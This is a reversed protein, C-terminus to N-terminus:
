LTGVETQMEVQTVEGRLFSCEPLVPAALELVFEGANSTAVFGFRPLLDEVLKNKATPIYHARLREAGSRRAYEVMDRFMFAEVGRGIVRCSMLWTDVTWERDAMEALLVGILGHDAFRDRLRYWRFCFEPSIMRRHVEEQSYRKTTLNFQNTKNILQTVRVCTDADVSGHEIQMCLDTLYQGLSGSRLRLMEQEASALYSASRTVDDSSLRIAQFYLGRELVAISESPEGSIEPVVVEPLEERVASREAPNDDLFVFSDLGLRLESAMQRINSPKDFWNAKFSVFDELRLVSDQHRRFVEAADEPNNKSAVALLVGRQGLAKVYQQFEQYREGVASPPGLRIGGLGDEGVVGGWLTNDLDLILLKRSLGLEARICSVLHEAVNPLVRPAPYIKAASWSISDEWPGANSAAIRESDILTVRTPAREFLTENINRITRARGANMVSSLAHYADLPPPAFTLQIIQASTRDIAAQWAENVRSIAEAALGNQCVDPLGLDRWNLLLIIFEPGFRSLESDPQLLEHMYAGFPPEYFEPELRDRLCLLEMVSRLLTTTSSGLLAIRIKRHCGFAQKCKRVLTEARLFFDYDPAGQLALRLLAAARHRDGERVYARARHLLAEPMECGSQTVLGEWYPAAAKPGEVTETLAARLWRAGQNPRSELACLVERELGHEVTIAVAAQVARRLDPGANEVSARIVEAATIM